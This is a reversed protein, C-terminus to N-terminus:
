IKSKFANKEIIPYNILVGRNSDLYVFQSGAALANINSKNWLELMDSTSGAGGLAVMPIQLENSPQQYLKIDYGSMLGDRDVSQLVIEGAGLDQIFMLYEFLDQQITTKNLHNYIRYDGWLNKKVDVCVVITSSGFAESAEKVFGPNEIASTNLIVKEAGTKLLAEIQRLDTIGGGVSFPMNAEEGVERVLDVQICRRERSANIDLIVIEDAYHDNFIRVANIPDGIYRHEKFRISKVLGSGKLLLVPIVRPRFM